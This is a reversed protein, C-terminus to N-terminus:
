KGTNLQEYLGAIEERRERSLWLDEEGKQVYLFPGENQDHIFLRAPGYPKELRFRGKLQGAAAFGNSKLIVEPLEEEITVQDIDGLKWELGYMGSIELHTETVTVENEMMSFYTLAGLGTLVLLGLISTLWLNRKRKGPVEYMQVRVAGGLVVLLFVALSIELGYPVPLLGMIFVGAFLLFILFLLREVAKVYGNEMLIRKEEEPRSSFGSILGYEKRKVVLFTLGGTIVLAFGMVLIFTITGTDM